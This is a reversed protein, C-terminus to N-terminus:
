DFGILNTFGFLIIMVIQRLIQEDLLNGKSSYRTFAHSKVTIIVGCLLKEGLFFTSCGLNALIDLYYENKRIELLKSCCM